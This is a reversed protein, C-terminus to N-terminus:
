SAERLYVHDRVPRADKALDSVEHLHGSGCQAPASDGVLIWPAYTCQAASPADMPVVRPTGLSIHM